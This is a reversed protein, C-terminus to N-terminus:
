VYTTNICFTHYHLSSFHHGTDFANSPWVALLSLFFLRRKCYLWTFYKFKIARFVSGIDLDIHFPPDPNKPDAHFKPDSNLQILPDPDLCASFQGRFILHPLFKMNSATNRIWPMKPHPIRIRIRIRIRSGSGAIKSM